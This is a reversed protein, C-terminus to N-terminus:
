SASVIDKKEFEKIMNKVYIGSGTEEPKQSTIHLIRM